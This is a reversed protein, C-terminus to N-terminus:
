GQATLEIGHVARGWQRDDPVDPHGHDDRESVPKGGRQRQRQGAAGVADRRHPRGAAHEEGPQEAQTRRLDGRAQKEGARGAENGVDIGAIRREVADAEGEGVHDLRHDAVDQQTAPLEITGAEGLRAVDTAEADRRHGRRDDAGRDRRDGEPRGATRGPPRERDRPERRHHEAHQDDRREQHDRERHGLGGRAAHQHGHREGREDRHHAPDRRDGDEDERLVTIRQQEQREGRQDRDRIAQSRDTGGAADRDDRHDRREEGRDAVAGDLDANAVRALRAEEQLDIQQRQEGARQREAREEGLLAAEGGLARLALPHM